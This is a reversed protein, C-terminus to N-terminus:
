EEDGAPFAAPGPGGNQEPDAACLSRRRRLRFWEYAVVGAAMLWPTLREIVRGDDWEESLGALQAFFADASRRIAEGDVPVLGSFLDGPSVMPAHGGPIQAPPPVGLPQSEPAQPMTGEGRDGEAQGPGRSTEPSVATAPLSTAVHVVGVAGLGAASLLNLAAHQGAAQISTEGSVASVGDHLASAVANAPLAQEFPAPHFHPHEEEETAPSDDDLDPGRVDPYSM